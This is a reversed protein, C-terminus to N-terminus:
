DIFEEYLYKFFSVEDNMRVERHTIGSCDEDAGDISGPEIALMNYKSLNDLAKIDDVFDFFNSGLTALGRCRDLDGLTTLQLGYLTSRGVSACQCPYRKLTDIAYFVGTGLTGVM